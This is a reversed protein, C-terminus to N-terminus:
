AEYNSNLFQIFYYYFLPIFYISINDTLLVLGFFSVTLFSNKDFTGTRIFYYLWILYLPVGLEILLKLHDSHLNLMPYNISELFSYTSGLGAGTFSFFDFSSLVVKYGNYRGQTLGNLSIANSSFFSDWTGAFLFVLLVFFTSYGIFQVTRFIGLKRETLSQPIFLHGLLTLLAAAVVIRKFSLLVFLFLVASLRYKKRTLFYLFSLGLAFSLQSETSTTSTVFLSILGPSNTFFSLIKAAYIFSYIAAPLLMMWTILKEEPLKLTSLFIVLLLPSIMFTVEKIFQILKTDNFFLLLGNIAIIVFYVKLFTFLRPDPKRIHRLQILLIIFILPLIYKVYRLILNFEDAVLVIALFAILLLYILRFKNIM